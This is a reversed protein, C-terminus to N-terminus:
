RNHLNQICLICGVQQCASGLYVRADSTRMGARSFIGVHGMLNILGMVRSITLTATDWLGIMRYSYPITKM